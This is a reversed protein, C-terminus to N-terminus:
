YIDFILKLSKLSVFEFYFSWYMIFTKFNNLFKGDIQNDKSTSIWNTM